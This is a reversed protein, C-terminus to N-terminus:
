RWATKEKGGYSGSATNEKDLQGRTVAASSKEQRHHQVTQESNTTQSNSFAMLAVRPRKRAFIPLAAGAGHLVCKHMLWLCQMGARKDGGGNLPYRYM